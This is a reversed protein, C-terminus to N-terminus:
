EARVLCFCREAMTSRSGTSHRRTRAFTRYTRRATTADGTMHQARALEIWAQGVCDCTSYENIVRKFYPTAATPNQLGLHAQGIGVLSPAFQADTPETQDVYAQFANIAPLWAGAQLDINGRQVLDFEVERNVLEVLALYATQSAPAERTANRWHDIASAVNGSNALAQGSRYQIEARYPANQAVSLIEDYVAVADGFREAAEYTFALNELVRVLAVPDDGTAAISDAAQRYAAAANDFSSLALYGAAIRSEIVEGLYPYTDLTARYEDIAETHKGQASLAQGRLFRVDAATLETRDFSIRPSALIDDLITLAQTANNDALAVRALLYQAELKTPAEVSVDTLLTGLISRAAPYDGHRVRQRADDLSVIALPSAATTPTPM